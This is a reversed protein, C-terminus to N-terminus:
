VIMQGPNGSNRSIVSPSIFAVNARRLNPKREIFEEVQEYVGFVRYGLPSMFHYFDSFPVHLKNDPNMSCEVIVIGIEADMLMKQAGILVNLDNGETDVKLYDIRPVCHEACFEDLTTIPVLPQDEDSQDVAIGYSESAAKTCNFRVMERKHGMGVGYAKVNSFRKVSEQLVAFTKPAPEFSFVQARPYNVLFTMASQGVNAGVDFIVKMQQRPLRRRIDNSLLAGSPSLHLSTGISALVMKTRRQIGCPLRDFMHWLGAV